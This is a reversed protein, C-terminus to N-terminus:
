YNHKDCNELIPTYKDGQKELIYICTNKPKEDLLLQELDRELLIYLLARITGGHSVLLVNEVEELEDAFNKVRQIVQKWNEGNPPANNFIDKRLSSFDVDEVKKGGFDGFHRERLREDHVVEADHHKAIQRATNSARQLNSSFIKDFSHNKLREAVNQAQQVGLDSLETDIQGQLIGDRNSYTQGHRVLFINM